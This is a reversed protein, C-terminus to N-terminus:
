QLPRTQNLDPGCPADRVNEGADRLLQRVDGREPLVGAALEVQRGQVPALHVHEHGSARPARGVVVWSVHDHPAGHPREELYAIEELRELELFSFDGALEDRGCLHLYTQEVFSGPEGRM